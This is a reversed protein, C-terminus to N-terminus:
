EGKQPKPVVAWLRAAPLQKKLEENEKQLEILKTEADECRSEWEEVHCKVNLNECMMEATSMSRLKETERRLAINDARLRTREDILEYNTDALKRLEAENEKKVRLFEAKFHEVQEELEAISMRWIKESAFPIERLARNEEELEAIRAITLPSDQLNM